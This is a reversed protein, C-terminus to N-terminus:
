NNVIFWTILDFNEPKYKDAPSGSTKLTQVAQKSGSKLKNLLDMSATGMKQKITGDAQIEEEVAQKNIWLNLSKALPEISSAEGQDISRLGDHDRQCDRHKSLADLVEKQNMLVSNGRM